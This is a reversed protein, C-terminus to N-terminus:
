TTRTTHNVVRGITGYLGVMLAPLIIALLTAVCLEVM